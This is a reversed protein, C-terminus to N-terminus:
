PGLPAAEGGKFLWTEVVALVSAVLGSVPRLAEGAAGSRSHSTAPSPAPCPTCPGASLCAPWEGAMESGLRNISAERAQVLAAWPRHEGDEQPPKLPLAPAWDPVGPQLSM